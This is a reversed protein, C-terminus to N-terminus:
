NKSENILSEIYPLDYFKKPHDNIGNEIDHLIDLTKKYYNSATNEKYYPNIIAVKDKMRIIHSIAESIEQETCKVDIVSNGRIRGEQRDGINITYIGLTPAEILGSSSNGILGISNKLLYHYDNTPLNEYYYSNEHSVVHKKVKKRIVDSHTDSNSGLFVFTYEPFTNIVNLLADVQDLVSINTLTEPHFLVVFYTKKPLNWVSDSVTNENIKLCNEAGLAGLNFVREPAEGLQIVRNKFPETSTIHFLSMKTISHRIFEDYNGFTAEGGHLHLIVIRNMAAAIAVSLMEYRDGLIILLDPRNESFYEGFRALTVAMSNIVGKNSSPDIPIEIEKEVHFGDQYILDVQHGYEPNLLAGTVLISLDISPDSDLLRLYSRVIGYDARSGTVFSVKKTKM